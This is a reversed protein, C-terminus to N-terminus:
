NLWFNVSCSHLYLNRINSDCYGAIYPEVDLSSLLIVSHHISPNVPLYSPKAMSPFLLLAKAPTPELCRTQNSHCALLFHLIFLLSWHRSKNFSTKAILSISASPMVQLVLTAAMITRGPMLLVIADLTM